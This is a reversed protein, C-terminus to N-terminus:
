TPASSLLRSENLIASFGQSTRLQELYYDCNDFILSIIPVEEDRLNFRMCM